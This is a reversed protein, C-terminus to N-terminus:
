IKMNDCIGDGDMDQFNPGSGKKGAAGSNNGKGNGRPGSVMNGDRDVRGRERPSSIIADVEEQSLFQAQYTVGLSALRSGFARLHNRSGKVLNQYVTLVDENDATGLLEELDKIDLDEITAGVLLAEELGASGKETLSNYLDQMEPSNFQGPGMGDVPDVLNYKVLLRGVADMHRQEAHSINLFVPDQWLDNLYIYVDRALKEEERMKLLSDKEDQSLEEYPLQSVSAGIGSVASKQGASNGNGQGAAMASNVSLVLFAATTLIQIKKMTKM